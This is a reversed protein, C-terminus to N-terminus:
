GSLNKRLNSRFAHLFPLCYSLNLFYDSSLDQFIKCGSTPIKLLASRMVKGQIYTHTHTYTGNHRIRQSGLSQLSGPEEIWPIKGALFRSHTAM